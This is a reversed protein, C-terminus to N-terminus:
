PPPEDAGQLLDAEREVPLSAAVHDQEARLGRCRYGHWVVAFQVPACKACNETLGVEGYGLKVLKESDRLPSADDGWRRASAM